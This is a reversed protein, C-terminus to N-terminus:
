ASEKMHRLDRIRREVLNTAYDLANVRSETAVIARLAVLEALTYEAKEIDASLSARREAKRTANAEEARRLREALEEASPFMEAEYEEALWMALKEIKNKSPHFLSRGDLGGAKHLPYIRWRSSRFAGDFTLYAREENDIFVRYVSRKYLMARAITPEKNDRCRQVEAALDVRELRIRRKADEFQATIKEMYPTM